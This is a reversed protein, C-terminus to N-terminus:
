HIAINGGAQENNKVIADGEKVVFAGDFAKYVACEGAPVHLHVDCWMKGANYIVNSSTQTGADPGKRDVVCLLYINQSPDM